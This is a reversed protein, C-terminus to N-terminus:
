DDDHAYSPNKEPTPNKEGWGDMYVYTHIHVRAYYIKMVNQGKM